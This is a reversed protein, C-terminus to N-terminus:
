TLDAVEFNAQALARRGLLGLAPVAALALTRVMWNRRELKM